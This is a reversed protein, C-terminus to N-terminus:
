YYTHLSLFISNHQDCYYFHKQSKIIDSTIWMLIKRIYLLDYDLATSKGCHLVTGEFDM